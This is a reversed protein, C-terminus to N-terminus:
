LGSTPLEIRGGAVVFLPCEPQAPLTHVRRTVVVAVHVRVVVRDAEATLEALM